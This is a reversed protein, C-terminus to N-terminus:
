TQSSQKLQSQQSAQSIKKESVETSCSLKVPKVAMAQELAEMLKNQM